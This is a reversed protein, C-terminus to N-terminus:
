AAPGGGHTRKQEFLSMDAQALLDPLTTPQDPDYVAAGITVSLDGYRPRRANHALVRQQLRNILMGNGVPDTEVALVAFEDGGIRGIVDSKRFSNAFVGAAERLAVDGEREGLSDNIQRLGDLDALLLLHRRHKREALVLQQEAVALFGRRNYLGTLRDLLMLERLAEEALKRETIDLLFGHVMKQGPLAEAVSADEYIWAYGRNRTLFRYESRFREGTALLRARGELVRPRDDPHLRTVPLAPDGLWEVPSFGLLDAIQPSVFIPLGGAELPGLYTAASIHEVLSRYHEPSFAPGRASRWGVAALAHHVAQRLEDLGFPKLLLRGSEALPKLAPAEAASGTMLLVPLGPWRREVEQKLWLGTEGPMDYDTLLLDQPETELLAIAEAATRAEAVQAGQRVLHWRVLRRVTADDDVVLIRAGELRQGADGAM